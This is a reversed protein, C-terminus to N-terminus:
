DRMAAEGRAATVLRQFASARKRRLLAFVAHEHREPPSPSRYPSRAMRAAVLEAVDHKAM